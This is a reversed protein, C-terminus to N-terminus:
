TRSGSVCRKGIVKGPNTSLKFAHCDRLSKKWTINLLDSESASGPHSGWSARANMTLIMGPIVLDISSSDRHAIKSLASKLCGTGCAGSVFSVMAAATAKLGYRERPGLLHQGMVFLSARAHAGSLQLMVSLCYRMHRLYGPLCSLLLWSNCSAMM